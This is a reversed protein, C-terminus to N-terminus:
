RKKNLEQQEAEWERDKERRETLRREAAAINERAEAKKEETTGKHELIAKGTSKTVQDLGETVVFRAVNFLGKGALSLSALGTDAVGDAKRVDDVAKGLDFFGRKAM